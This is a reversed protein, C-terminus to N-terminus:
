SVQYQRIIWVGSLLPVGDRITPIRSLEGGAGLLILRDQHKKAVNHKKQLVSVHSM